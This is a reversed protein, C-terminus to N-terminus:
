LFDFEKRFTGSSSSEGIVMPLLTKLPLSSPIFSLPKQIDNM